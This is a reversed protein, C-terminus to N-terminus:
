KNRSVKCSTIFVTLSATMMLDKLVPLNLVHLQNHKNKFVLRMVFKVRVWDVVVQLFSEFVLGYTKPKNIISTRNSM